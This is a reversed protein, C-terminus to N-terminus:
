VATTLPVVVGHADHLEDLTAQIEANRQDITWGLPGSLVDALETLLEITVGGVFALNTRRLVVDALHVAHEREAFFAVEARTLEPDSELQEVPQDLLVDIVETARTGYRTLLRDVVLADLGDRHSNVWLTRAADTTPFDKGGGIAMGATDVKRAVGLRDTAETSLHASLARFTTWKGGVLSLVTGSVGDIPTEVIRYDRSVFGPATDEHRPLPRIGSYRYV